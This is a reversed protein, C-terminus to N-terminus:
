AFISRFPYLSLLIIFPTETDWQYSHIHWGSLFYPFTQISGCKLVFPGLMNISCEMWSCCFVYEECICMFCDGSYIMYYHVLCIKAFKLDLDFCSDKRVM